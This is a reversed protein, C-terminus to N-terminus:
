YGRAQFNMDKKCFVFVSISGMVVIAGFLSIVVYTPSPLIAAMESYNFNVSSMNMWSVPTIYLLWDGLLLRGHNMSFFSLFIFVGAAIIGSMKEIWINFFFILVGIFVSVLWFLGFSILMAEIASFMTVIEGNVFVTVNSPAMRPDAGMSNLLIGWDGAFQVNPILVVISVVCIFATYIFSALIIYLLQGIVWNRRGTRVVLFPMHKDTFPADCFLLVTLCAFVQMVPPTTLHPFIWPTIGVGKDAAFQSLGFSHYALFAIIAVALTYVRPNVDWKRFNVNTCLLMMKLDTM